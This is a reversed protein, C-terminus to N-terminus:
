YIMMQWFGLESFTICVYYNKKKQGQIGRVGAPLSPPTLARDRIPTFTLCIRLRFKILYQSGTTNQIAKIKQIDV